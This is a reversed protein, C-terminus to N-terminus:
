FQIYVCSWYDDFAADLTSGYGSYLGNASIIGWKEEFLMVTLEPGVANLFGQDDFYRFRRQHLLPHNEITARFENLTLM